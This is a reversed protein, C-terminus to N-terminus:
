KNNIYDNFKIMNLFVTLEDVVWGACGLVAGEKSKMVKYYVVVLLLCVRLPFVALVLCTWSWGRTFVLFYLFENTVVFIL